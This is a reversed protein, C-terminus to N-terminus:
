SHKCLRIRVAGLGYNSLSFGRQHQKYAGAGVAEQSFYRVSNIATAHVAGWISLYASGVRAFNCDYYRISCLYWILMYEFIINCKYTNVKVLYDSIILTANLVTTPLTLKSPYATGRQRDITCSVPQHDMKYVCWMM